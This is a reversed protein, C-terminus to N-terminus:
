NFKKSNFNDGLMRSIKFYHKLCDSFNSKCNHKLKLKHEAWARKFVLSKSM